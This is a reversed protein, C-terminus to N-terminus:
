PPQFHTTDTPSGAVSRISILSRRSPTFKNAIALVAREDTELAIKQALVVDGPALSIDTVFCYCIRPRGLDDLEEVNMSSGYHIRYRKGTDSGIVDFCGDADFQALQEPSLWERLLKLGRAVRDDNPQASLRECLSRIRSWGEALTRRFLFM